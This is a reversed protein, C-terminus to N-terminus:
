SQAEKILWKVRSSGQNNTGLRQALDTLVSELQQDLQWPANIIAMGSGHMGYDDAQAETSLEAILLNKYGGRKLERLMMRSKDRQRALLPYWIAYTGTAWRKHAEKVTNVVAMYDEQLEYPPDILVLGRRITPPLLATLGEYGNRHHIAVREDGQMNDRLVEVENNHLEMLMLRDQERLMLRSIEPSGPYYQLQGNKNHAQVCKFYPKLTPWQDQEHWLQAIGGTYESTKQAQDAQLDYLGGGAHTDICVFAKNKRKLSEFILCQTLHKLVDAHNGAHFAHRYSLM